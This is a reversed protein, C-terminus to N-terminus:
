DFRHKKGRRRPPSGHRKHDARPPPRRHPNPKGKSPRQQQSNLYQQRIQDYETSTYMQNPDIYGGNVMQQYQQQQQAWQQQMEPTVYTDQGITQNPLSENTVVSNGVTGHDGFPDYILDIGSNLTNAIGSIASQGFNKLSGQLSHDDKEHLLGLPDITNSITNGIYSGASSLGEKIRKWSGAQSSSNGM